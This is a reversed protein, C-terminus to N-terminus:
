GKKEEEYKRIMELKEILKEERKKFEEESIEDMDFLMQIRLLEEQVKSKDTFETEATEKIKEGIWALGKIPLLFPFLIDALGFNAVKRSEITAKKEERM